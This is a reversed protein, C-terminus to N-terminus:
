QAAQDTADKQHIYEPTNYTSDEDSNKSDYVALGTAILASIIGTCVIGVGRVAIIIFNYADGGVIVGTGDSTDYNFMMIVGYIALGVAVIYFLAIIQKL